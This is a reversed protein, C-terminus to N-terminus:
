QKQLKDEEQKKVSPENKQQPGKLCQRCVIGSNSDWYKKDYRKGCKFYCYKKTLLGASRKRSPANLSITSPIEQTSKAQERNSKPEPLM